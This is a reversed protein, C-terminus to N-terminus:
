NTRGSRGISSGVVRGAFRRSAIQTYEADRHSGGHLGADFQPHHVRLSAYVLDYVRLDGRPPAEPHEFIDQPGTIWGRTAAVGSDYSDGRGNATASVTGDR